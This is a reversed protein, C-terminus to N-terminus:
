KGYGARDVIGSQCRSRVPKGNKLMSALDDGKSGLHLWLETVLGQRCKMEVRKGSGPGFRRDFLHRVQALTVRKGQNKVFYENVGSQEFQEMLAIIDRFYHEADKGYCTGHRIWEHRHLNSSFGPMFHSLGGITRESLALHPLRNWQGHRDLTVLSADVDCYSNNQPQPWLGHLVFHSESYRKSAFGFLPQRCEKRNRHTECFANHWSLALLLDQPEGSTEYKKTNYTDSTDKKTSFCCEDVWRQAPQEGKVLVLFQGKHHQLVTYERSTNLHVDHSNQTHKMNNFAPCNGAPVAEYRAFLSFTMILMLFFSRRMECVKSQIQFTNYRKPILKSIIVEHYKFVKFCDGFDKAAFLFGGTGIM